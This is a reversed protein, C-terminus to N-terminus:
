KLSWKPQFYSWNDQTIAWEESGDALSIFLQNVGSRNSTYLIVRGDPSFAPNEHSAQRGSKKSAKTIRKLNEGTRSISYIDFAKEAWGAFVLSESDPSWSPAANFTGAFTLRKPNEGDRNAVYIMPRGARDSSFSLWNGDPSLAPEVNMAGIPGNTIQKLINGKTDIRFIDPNNDGSITMLLSQPSEFFAGSNMGKRYSVMQHKNLVRDYIYLDPNRLKTSKRQMFATYAIKSGDPSWAPSLAISRHNTIRERNYGDWDMVYIEREGPQNPNLASVVIQSLFFGPKGSIKEVIDNAASHALRRLSELRGRYQKALILKTSNIHYFYIDLVLDNNLLNVSSKLLYDTGITKWDDWNFGGAESTIPKFALSKDLFSEAPQIKFYGIVSLDRILTERFESTIQVFNTVKPKSGIFEITPIALNSLKIQAEGLKIYVQQAVLNISFVLITCFVNAATKM